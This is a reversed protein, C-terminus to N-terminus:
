PRSEDRQIAVGVKPLERIRRRLREVTPATEIDIAVPPTCELEALLAAWAKRERERREQDRQEIRRDWYGPQSREHRDAHLEALVASPPWIVSDAAVFLDRLALGFIRLWRPM